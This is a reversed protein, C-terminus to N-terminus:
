SAMWKLLYTYQRFTVNKDWLIPTLLSYLGTSIRKPDSFIHSQSNRHIAVDNDTYVFISSSVHFLRFIANILEVDLQTINKWPSQEDTTEDFTSPLRGISHLASRHPCQVLSFLFRTPWECVLGVARLLPGNSRGPRSLTPFSGVVIENTTITTSGDTNIPAFEIKGVFARRTGRTILVMAEGSSYRAEHICTHTNHLWRVSEILELRRQAHYTRDPYFAPSVYQDAIGTCSSREAASGDRTLTM